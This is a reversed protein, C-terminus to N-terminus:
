LAPYAEETKATSKPLWWRAWWGTLSDDSEDFRQPMVWPMVGCYPMDLEGAALADCPRTLNMILTRNADTARWSWQVLRVAEGRLQEKAFKCWHYLGNITVAPVCSTRKVIRWPEYRPSVDSVHFAVVILEHACLQHFQLPSTINLGNRSITIFRECTVDADIM